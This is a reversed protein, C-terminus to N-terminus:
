IGDPLRALGRRVAAARRDCQDEPTGVSSGAPAPEGADDVEHVSLSPRPRDANAFELVCGTTGAEASAPPEVRVLCAVRDGIRGCQEVTTTAGAFLEAHADLRREFTPVMEPMVFFEAATTTPRDGDDSGCGAIVAAALAAAVLPLASSPRM